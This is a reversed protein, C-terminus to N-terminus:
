KSLLANIQDKASRILEEYIHELNSVETIPKPDAKFRDPALVEYIPEGHLGCTLRILGGGLRLKLILDSTPDGETSFAQEIDSLPGWVKVIAEIAKELKIKRVALLRDQPTNQHEQKTEPM